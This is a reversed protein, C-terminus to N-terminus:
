PPPQPGIGAAPGTEKTGLYTGNEADFISIRIVVGAQEPHMVRAHVVRVDDKPRYLVWSGPPADVEADACDQPAPQQGAPREPFWLRCEGPPPLQGEPIGLPGQRDADRTARSEEHERTEPEPPPPTGPPPGCASAALLHLVRWASLRM